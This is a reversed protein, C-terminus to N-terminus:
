NTETARVTVVPCRASRIIQQSVSGFVAQRTPSRDRGGVLVFDPDFDTMMEEIAAAPEGIAGRIESDLGHDELADVLERILTKQGIIRKAADAASLESQEREFESTVSSGGSSGVHLSGTEPRGAPGVGGSRDVHEAITEVAREYESETLVHGIRLDAERDGVITAVTEAITEIRDSDEEGVALLVKLAM